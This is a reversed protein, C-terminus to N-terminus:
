SELTEQLQALHQISKLTKLGEIHYRSYTLLFNDIIQGTSRSVNAENARSLPSRDFWRLFHLTQKSMEFVPGDIAGCLDCSFVGDSYSFYLRDDIDERGCKACYRLEPALGYLRLFKLLFARIINKQGSTATELTRLVVLLLRFLEPNVHEIAETREVIECAIAALAMKGLQQHVSPFSDIIDVERLYQIDRSEKRYFVLSIHNYPELAGLHRSKISRSGKAMLSLKGFQRTFLSLIKSTEGYRRSHLIIASAKEIAM